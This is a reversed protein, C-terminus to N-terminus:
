IMRLAAACVGLSFAVRSHGRGIHDVEAMWEELYRQRKDSPLQRVAAAIMGRTVGMSLRGPLRGFENLLRDAAREAVRDLFKKAFLRLAYLVGAAIAADWASLQIEITALVQCSRPLSNCQTQASAAISDLVEDDPKLKPSNRKM